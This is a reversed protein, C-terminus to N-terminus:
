GPAECVDRGSQSKYDWGAPCTPTEYETSSKTCTDAGDRVAYQFGGPCKVDKADKGKTQLEEAAPGFKATGDVV